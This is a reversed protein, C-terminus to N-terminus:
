AKRKQEATFLVRAFSVTGFVSLLIILWASLMGILKCVAPVLVGFLVIIPKRRACSGFAAGFIAASAYLRLGESIARTSRM